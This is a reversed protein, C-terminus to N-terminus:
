RYGLLANLLTSKGANHRGFASILIKKEQLDLHIKRLKTPDDEFKVSENFGQLRELILQVFSLESSYKLYRVQRPLSTTTLQM